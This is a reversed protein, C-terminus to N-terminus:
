SGIISCQYEFLSLTNKHKTQNNMSTFFYFKLKRTKNINNKHDKHIFSDLQRFQFKFVGRVDHKKAVDGTEKIIEIAHEVNGQHNNALDFVFIDNFDFDNQM